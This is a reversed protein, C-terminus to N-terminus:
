ASEKTVQLHYLSELTTNGGSTLAIVPKGQSLPKAYTLAAALGLAGSPELLLHTEMAAKLMASAIEEESVTM